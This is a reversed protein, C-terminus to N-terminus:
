HLGIKTQGLETAEATQRFLEKSFNFRILRMRELEKLIERDEEDVSKEESYKKLVEVQRKKM